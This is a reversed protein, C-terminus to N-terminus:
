SEYDEGIYKKRIELFLEEVGKKGSSGYADEVANILREALKDDLEEVIKKSQEFLNFQLEGVM